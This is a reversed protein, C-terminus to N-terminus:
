GQVSGKAVDVFGIDGLVGSVFATGIIRNNAGAAPAAAVARGQADSTLLAGRTITGGYEVKQLGNLYGDVRDGVADAGLIGTVGILADTAATALVVSGDASGFKFIRYRPIAGEATFNKALGMSQSM